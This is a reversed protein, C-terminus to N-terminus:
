KIIVPSPLGSPVQGFINFENNIGVKTATLFHVWIRYSECVEFVDEVRHSADASPGALPEGGWEDEAVNKVAVVAM